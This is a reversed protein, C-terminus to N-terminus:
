MGWEEPTDEKAKRLIYELAAKNSRFLYIGRRDDVACYSKAFYGKEYFVYGWFRARRKVEETSVARRGEKGEM